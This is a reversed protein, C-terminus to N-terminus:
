RQNNNQRRREYEARMRKSEEVMQRRMFHKLIEFRSMDAGMSWYRNWEDQTILTKRADKPCKKLAEYYIRRVERSDEATFHRSM